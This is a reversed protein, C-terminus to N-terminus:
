FKKVKAAARAIEPDRESAQRLLQLGPVSLTRPAERYETCGCFCRDHPKHWCSDCKPKRQLSRVVKEPTQCPIYSYWPVELRFEGGLQWDGPRCDECPELDAANEARAEFDASSTRVGGKCRGDALHYVLTHGITYLLWLERGLMGRNEPDPCDDDHDPNTDLIKWLQLEAWRLRDGSDTDVKDILRGTFDLTEGEAPLVHHAMGAPVAITFGNM